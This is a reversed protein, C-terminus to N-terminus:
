PGADLLYDCRGANILHLVDAPTRGDTGLQYGEGATEADVGAARAARVVMARAPVGAAWADLGFTVGVLERRCVDASSAAAPHLAALVVPPPLSDGPRRTDPQRVRDARRGGDLRVVLQLPHNERVVM